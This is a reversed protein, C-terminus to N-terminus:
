TCAVSDLVLGNRLLRTCEDAPVPKSFYFGQAESCGQATLLELQQRSEVGEAVVRMHLSKGMSIVANVISADAPDIRIRRVFSQDIKVADIPFTRLFRLSAYGTGFDDLALQVGVKKLARLVATTAEIDQLLFTETVELELHRSELQTEALIARVDNAFDASRLEAPSINIALCTPALGADQWARSQRCAERLVWRGIAVILGCEEAIPIFQEPLILGLRPHRWRILAEVGIIVGTALAIKPQYHLVLEQREIAHRLDTELSQREIARANMDSRFFQYRDRGNDKAHYMAFDANKILAEADAGDDPYTVIGISGTVHLEHQDVRFPERLALLVKDATVSADRAHAVESLIMVFEDGGQRSVTDSGRVCALLRRAVCQLLRDGVVHGLSDNIRKFRDLDVFLVALHRGHRRALAIAESLRDNLLLRNPLDTLADHQALYSMRHSLARAASVDRFVMVAGIVQGRRDHIPAASDEIAVEGGDRRILICNPTLGVAKNGRIAFAMPSQAVERTAADLIHLVTEFPEGEAEHRSWGTLSEAVANLYTVRGSVDTSIVADGISNLTVEAREQEEYLAEANAAREIMSNITKPLLYADLRAQLLYDQAGRQVALKALDENESTSLILIPVRPAAHLVREFTEIGQADDLFLDVLVADIGCPSQQRTLRELAATCTQVWEVVVGSDPSETLARTITQAASADNHVLLIHRL